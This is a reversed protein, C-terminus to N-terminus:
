LQRVTKKEELDAMAYPRSLFIVYLDNVLEQSLMLLDTYVNLQGFGKQMKQHLADFLSADAQKWDTQFVQRSIEQLSSYSVDLDEEESLM